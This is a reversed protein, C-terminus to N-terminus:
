ANPAKSKKPGSATEQAARAAALEDKTTRHAEQEAALAAEAGDARVKEASARAAVEANESRLEAITAEAQTLRAQVPVLLEQRREDHRTVHGALRAREAELNEVHNLADALQEKLQAFTPESM